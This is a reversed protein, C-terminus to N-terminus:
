QAVYLTKQFETYHLLGFKSDTIRLWKDVELPGSVEDFMPPHMVLFDTYSSDMVPPHHPECVGHHVLDLPLQENSVPLSPPQPLPLPPAPATGRPGTAAARTRADSSELVDLDFNSTSTCVM